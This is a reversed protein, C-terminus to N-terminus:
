IWAFRVRVDGHVFEVGPLVHRFGFLSLWYYNDDCGRGYASFNAKIPNTKELRLTAANQM